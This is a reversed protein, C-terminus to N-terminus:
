TDCSCKELFAGVKGFLFRLAPILHFLNGLSFKRLFLFKSLHLEEEEKEDTNVCILHHCFLRFLCCTLLSSTMTGKM